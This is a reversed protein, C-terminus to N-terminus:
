GADICVSLAPRLVHARSGSGQGAGAQSAAHKAIPAGLAMNMRRGLFKGTWIGPQRVEGSDRTGGRAAVIQGIPDPKTLM